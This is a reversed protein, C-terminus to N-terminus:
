ERGIKFGFDRPIVRRRFDENFYRDTMCAIYDVAIREPPTSELYAPRMKRSAWRFIYSDGDRSVLEKLYANYLYRFMKEIKPDESKKEPNHYINTYNFELLEKLAKRYPDSFSLGKKGFSQEILDYSLSRIIHDNRDGLLERIQGPIEERKLMGITIADEIDRGIYAIVDAIRVVCGELTMPKIGRGASGDAACSEYEELFQEATKAPSPLYVDELMEGNHCLIGDLVQVTLNLGRGNNELERLTRVSQVNHSFSGINEDQCIRNLFREGDHGYPVHGLDHGLAIAEILDENLKLARGIQRAIKSVLQVHLVRHTINDNQFLYFVQTKDIYRTYSLSHIIRDTDRTFSSRIDKRGAERNEPALRQGWSSPCALPSLTLEERQKNQALITSVLRSDM